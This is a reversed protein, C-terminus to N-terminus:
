EQDIKLFDPNNKFFATLEEDTLNEDFYKYADSEGYWYDFYVNM